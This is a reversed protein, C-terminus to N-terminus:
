TWGLKKFKRNDQRQTFYLSFFTQKLRAHLSELLLSKSLFPWTYMSSFPNFILVSSIIISPALVNARGRFPSICLKRWIGRPRRGGFGQPSTKLFTWQLYHSLNALPSLENDRRLLIPEIWIHGLRQIASWCISSAPFKKTVMLFIWTYHLITWRTLSIIAELLSSSFPFKM